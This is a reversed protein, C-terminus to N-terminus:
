AFSSARGIPLRGPRGGRIGLKVLLENAIREEAARTAAGIAVIAATTFIVLLRTMGQSGSDYRPAILGHQGIDDLNYGVAAARCGAYDM